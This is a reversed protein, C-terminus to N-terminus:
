SAKCVSPVVRSRPKVAVLANSIGAGAKSIVPGAAGALVSATAGM